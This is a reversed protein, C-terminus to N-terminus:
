AWVLVSAWVRSKGLSLLTTNPAVEVPQWSTVQRSQLRVPRPDDRRGGGIAHPVSPVDEVVADLRRGARHQADVPVRRPGIQPAPEERGRRRAPAHDRRVVEPHAEGLARARRARERFADAVEARERVREPHGARARDDDDRVVPAARDGETPHQRVALLHPRDDEGVGRDMMRGADAAGASMRSARDAANRCAVQTVM